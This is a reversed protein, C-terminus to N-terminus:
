LKGAQELQRRLQENEDQLAACRDKIRMLQAKCHGLEERILPLDRWEVVHLREVQNNLVERQAEIQALHIRLKRITQDPDESEGDATPATKLVALGAAVVATFGDEDTWRHMGFVQCMYDWAGLPLSMDITAMGSEPHVSKVQLSVLTSWAADEHSPPKEETTMDLVREEPCSLAHHM